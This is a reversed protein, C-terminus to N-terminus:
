WREKAKLITPLLRLAQFKGPFSQVETGEPYSIYNLQYYLEMPNELKVVCRKSYPIPFYSVAGGSSAQAFPNMFPQIKGELFSRFDEAIVPEPNGDLYIKIRGSEIEAVVTIEGRERSGEYAHKIINTCAEDVALKTNSVERPSFGAEECVAVIFDRVRGLQGEDALVTLDRVVAGRSDLTAAGRAM